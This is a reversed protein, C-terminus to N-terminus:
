RFAAVLDQTLDDDQTTTNDERLAQIRAIWQLFETEDILGNGVFFMFSLTFKSSCFNLIANANSSNEKYNLNVNHIWTTIFIKVIEGEIWEDFLCFYIAISTPSNKLYFLCVGRCFSNWCNLRQDKKYVRDPFLILSLIVTFNKFLEFRLAIVM